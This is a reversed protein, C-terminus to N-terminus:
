QRLLRRGAPLARIQAKSLKVQVAGGPIWDLEGFPIATRRSDWVRGTRLVLHTICYGEPDVVFAQAEGSFGDRSNVRAGPRVVLGGLVSKERVRTIGAAGPVAYSRLYLLGWGDYPVFESESFVEVTRLEARTCSLSFGGPLRCRIWGAPVLRSLASDEAMRVALHTIRGRDPHLIVATQRGIGGDRFVIGTEIPIEMKDM